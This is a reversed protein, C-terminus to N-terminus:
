RGPVRNGAIWVGEITRTNDIDVLPSAGFVILDAWNGPVLTGVDGLNMCEAAQGTAAHIAESPSMGSKVMAPMPFEYLTKQDPLFGPFEM